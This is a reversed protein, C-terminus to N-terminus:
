NGTPTKEAHDVVLSNVPGKRHELELGLKVLGRNLGKLIAAVRDTRSDQAAAPDRSAAAAAAFADTLSVDLVVQFRGTVATMDVVDAPLGINLLDALGELTISPAEWRFTRDPHQTERVTGLRPNSRTISYGGDPNQIRIERTELGGFQILKGPPANPDPADANPAAEKLKLGGKAVVLAYVEEQNTARHVALQFRDALLAQLMEPVKKESADQPLKASIDFTAGRRDRLWDPGTIRYPPVRYAYGILAALTACEIDVRGRDMKFSQPCGGGKRGGMDEATPTRPVSPKVSAVEFEPRTQASVMAVFLVAATLVRM